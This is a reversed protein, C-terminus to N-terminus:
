KFLKKRWLLYTCHLSNKEKEDITYLIVYNNIIMKRYCRKLKDSKEIKSFMKPSDELLLINDKVKKRLRNSAYKNELVYSIYFCIEEFEFIFQKTLKVSYGM